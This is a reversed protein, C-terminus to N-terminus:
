RRTGKQYFDCTSVPCWAKCLGSPKEIWHGEEHAQMLQSSRDHFEQWMVDVDERLFEGKTKDRFQIWLFRSRVKEIAPYNAFVLLAMLKLQATPKIKGFKYDLADADTDRLKLVDIIGRCWADPSDFACPTLEKTVALEHECHTAGPISIIGQAFKELYSFESPLTKGDRVREELALHGRTGWSTTPHVLQQFNGAIKTEYFQRPCTEYASLQSFSWAM